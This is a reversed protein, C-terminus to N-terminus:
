EKRGYTILVQFLSLFFGVSLSIGILWELSELYEDLTNGWVKSLTLFLAMFFSLVLTRILFTLYPRGKFTFFTSFLTMIIEFM